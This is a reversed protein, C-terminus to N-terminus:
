VLDSDSLTLYWNELRSAVDAADPAFSWMTINPGKGRPLFGARYYARKAWPRPDVTDFAVHDTGHDAALRDAAFALLQTTTAEDEILCDTIRGMGVLDDHRVGFTIWGALRGDEKRATYTRWTGSPNDRWRWGLYGADRVRICHAWRSSAEALEDFEAGFTEVEEVTAPKRPQLRGALRSAGLAAAVAPKFAPNFTRGRSREVAAPTHWRIWQPLRGPMVVDTVEDTGSWMDIVIDAPFSLRVDWGSEALTAEYFKRTHGQGRYEPVIMLDSGTGVLGRRGDFFTPFRVSASHGIPRHGAVLVRITPPHGPHDLFRWRWEAMRRDGFTEKFMAQIAHEDGPEYARLTVEDPELAGDV